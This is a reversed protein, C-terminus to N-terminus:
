MADYSQCGWLSKNPIPQCEWRKNLLRFIHHDIKCALWGIAHLPIYLLLYRFSNTLIFASVVFMFCVSLYELTIGMLMVPRTLGTYVASEWLNEM